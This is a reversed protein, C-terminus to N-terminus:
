ISKYDNNLKLLANISNKVGDFNLEIKTSKIDEIMRVIINSLSEKDLDEPKLISLSGYKEFLTIRLDQEKNVGSFGRQYVLMTKKAAISEIISNYGGLSIVLSANSLYKLYENGDFCHINIDLSAISYVKDKLSSFDKQFAGSFLVLKHKIKEKILLHSDIIADLLENGLRGAAVSVLVLPYDASIEKNPIERVIYGTHFIPVAVKAVKSFSFTLDAMREDGHVLILDYWKNILESIYEDKEGGGNSEIIDRVSSVVKSLPNSKKVEKILEIVENEFLLGFPFHETILIDPIVNLVTEQIINKRLIFCEEITFSSDVSLLFDSNEEKYIAPLQIYKVTEPLDFNPVSEGGNIIYVEFYKSLGSALELARVFHGIGYVYQCHLIIKPKIYIKSGM